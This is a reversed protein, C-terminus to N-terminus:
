NNEPNIDAIIKAVLKDLPIDSKIFYDVAGLAVCEGIDDAFGINTSIVVPIKSVSDNKKIRKLVEIGNIKPLILDLVIIDPKVEKIKDEVHEGTTEIHVDHGLAKFKIEYASNLFDDDEIIFIKAM